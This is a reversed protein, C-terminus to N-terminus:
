LWETLTEFYEELTTKEIHKQYEKSYLYLGLQHALAYTEKAVSHNGDRILLYTKCLLLEPLLRHSYLSKLLELSKDIHTIEYDNDKFFIFHNYVLRALFRLEFQENRNTAYHSVSFLNTIYNYLFTYYKLGEDLKGLRCYGVMICLLLNLEVNSLHIKPTDIDLSFKPNISLGELALRIAEEENHLINATFLVKAHLLTQKPEGSQFVELSEYEEIIKPLKKAASINCHQNLTEIKKHTDIDHHRLMLAYTEYLNIGLRTSLQNVIYLTPIAKDNEIHSLYKRDCIGDALAEQSLGQEKRYHKIIEGITIYNNM